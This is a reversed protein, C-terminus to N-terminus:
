SADAILRLKYFHGQKHLVGRMDPRKKHPKFYHLISM